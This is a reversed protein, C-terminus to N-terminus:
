RTVPVFPAPALAERVLDAVATLGHEPRLVETAYHRGARGSELAAAPHEDWHRLAAELSNVDGHEVVVGAGTHDVEHATASDGHTVAVVPRGAACYSTLKSPLSMDRVTSREHVLLVDASALVVPYDDGGVPPRVEVTALGQLADVLTQRANGDGIFSFLVHPMRSAIERMAPVFEELGQKMGMNGTHAVVFKGEWGLARRMLGRAAPDVPATTDLRTWNRVVHVRGTPCLGHVVPVFAPSPVTIASADVFLSREVASLLTQVRQAAAMGSQAAASSILDQVLVVHPVGLRRATRAGFVGAFLAPSCALVLDPRLGAVLRHLRAAAVYGLEYVARRATTPRRPVYTPVRVVRVGHDLQVSYRNRVGEPRRWAPYHPHTTVVTVDAGCAALHRAVDTTYPASGTHEPAYYLSTLLIRRGALDPSM